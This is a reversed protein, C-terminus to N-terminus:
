DVSVRSVKLNLKRLVYDNAEDRWLENQINDNVRGTYWGQPLHLQANTHPLMQSTSTSAWEGTTEHQMSALRDVIRNLRAERTLCEKQHSKVWSASIPIPLRHKWYRIEQLADADVMNATAISYHREGELQNFKNVAAENDCWLTASDHTLPGKHNRLAGHLILLAGLIGLLETRYSSLQCPRGDVPIVAKLTGPEVTTHLTCAAGGKGNKLTGNTAIVLDGAIDNIRLGQM